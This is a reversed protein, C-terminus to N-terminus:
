QKGAPNIKFFHKIAKLTLIDGYGRKDVVDKHGTEELEMLSNERSYIIQTDCGSPGYRLIFNNYYPEILKLTEVAIQQSIAEHKSGIGLFRRITAVDSILIDVMNTVKLFDDFTYKDYINHPVVDFVITPRQKRKFSQILEFTHQVASFRKANRTNISYGSIYLISSLSIIDKNKEIDEYSLDHNANKKNNILFRIGASDRAIIAKGTSKKSVWDNIHAIGKKHLWATIADGAIDSGVKSLLLPRYGMCHAYACFNLGSGGPIEVINGWDIIGNEVLDKFCFSLDDSVIYDINVDGIVVIDFCTKTM